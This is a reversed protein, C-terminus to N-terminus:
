GNTLARRGIVRLHTKTFAIGEVEYAGDLIDHVGSLIVQDGYNIATSLPIRCVIRREEGVQGADDRSIETPTRDQHVSGLVTTDNVAATKSWIGEADVISPSALNLSRVTIPTRAGRM